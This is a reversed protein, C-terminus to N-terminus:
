ILFNFYTANFLPPWEITERLLRKLIDVSALVPPQVYRKKQEEKKFDGRSGNQICYLLSINPQETTHKQRKVQRVQICELM